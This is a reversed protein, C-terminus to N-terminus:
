LSKEGKRESNIEREKKVIFRKERIMNSVNM